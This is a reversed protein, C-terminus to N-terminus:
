KRLIFGTLFRLSQDNLLSAITHTTPV